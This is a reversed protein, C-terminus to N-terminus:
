PPTLFSPLLAPITVFSLPLFPILFSPALCSLSSMPLGFRLCGPSGNRRKAARGVPQCAPTRSVGSGRVQFHPTETLDQPAARPM